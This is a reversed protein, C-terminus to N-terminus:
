EPSYDPARAASRRTSERRVKKLWRLETRIQDIGLNLMWVAEHFGHGVEKRVAALTERDATLKAKLFNEREQM